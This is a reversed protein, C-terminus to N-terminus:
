RCSGPYCTLLRAVSNVELKSFISARHAEVTRPSLMLARAIEKSAKGRMIQALVEKERPTLRALKRNLEQHRLQRSYWQRHQELANGTVDVLTNLELPKPLFDFAGLRFAQRCQRISAHRSIIIIPISLGQAQWEVLPILADEEGPPGADALLCGTLTNLQPHLARFQSISAYMKCQWGAGSLAQNVLTQLALDQDILYVYQQM